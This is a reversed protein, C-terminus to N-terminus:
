KALVLRCTEGSGAKLPELNLLRNSGKLSDLAALCLVAPTRLVPLQSRASHLNYSM